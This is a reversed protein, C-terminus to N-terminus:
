GPRAGKTKLYSRLKNLARNRIQRVRERSIKLRKGIREMSEPEDGDLGYNRRIIVAEIKTLKRLGNSILEQNRKKIFLEEPSPITIEGGTEDDIRDVQILPPIKIEDPSTSLERAVEEISPERGMQKYLRKVAKDMRRDQESWDVKMIQHDRIASQIEKRIWWVAYTLFRVKRREDYNATAKVLGYNGAIILELLSLGQNQFKKAVQVVFRLNALILKERAAEDGSRARRALRVEEERSIPKYNAIDKFYRALGPDIM